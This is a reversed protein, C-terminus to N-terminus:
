KHLRAVVQEFYVELIYFLTRAPIGTGTDVAWHCEDEGRFLCTDVVPSDGGICLKVPLLPVVPVKGLKNNLHGDDIGSLSLGHPQHEDSWVAFVDITIRCRHVVALSYAFEDYWIGM